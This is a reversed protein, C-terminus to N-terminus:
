PARDRLDEQAGLAVEGELLDHGERALAGGPDPDGGDVAGELQELLRAQDLPVGEVPRGGAELGDALAGVVVV